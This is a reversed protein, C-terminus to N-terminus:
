FVVIARVSGGTGDIGDTVKSLRADFVTSPPNPPIHGRLATAM